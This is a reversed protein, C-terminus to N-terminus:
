TYDPGVTIAQAGVPIEVAGVDDASGDLGSAVAYFAVASSSDGLRTHTQM